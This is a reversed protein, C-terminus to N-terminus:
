PKLSMRFRHTWESPSEGKFLRFAMNFTVPTHFGSLMSLEEVRLHPDRRFLEIAHEVRHYNVFQRFNQGSMINITKSLFAKNTYMQRAVEELSVNEDLYPKKEEFFAMLREYFDKMRKEKVSDVFERTRISGEVTRRLEAEKAAPMYMTRNNLLRLSAIVSLLVSLVLLLAWLPRAAEGLSLSLSHLVLLLCIICAYFVKADDLVNHWVAENRFLRNISNFRRRDHMAAESLMLMVIFPPSLVMKAPFGALSFNRLPVLSLISLVLFAAPLADSPLSFSQRCHSAILCFSALILNLYLCPMLMGPPGFLFDLASLSAAAIAAALIVILKKKKM